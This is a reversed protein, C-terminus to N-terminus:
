TDWLKKHWQIGETLRYLLTSSTKKKNVLFGFLSYGTLTSLLRGTIAQLPKENRVSLLM